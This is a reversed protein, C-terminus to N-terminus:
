GLFETIFEALRMLESPTFAVSCDSNECILRIAQHREFNGAGDVVYALKHGAQQVQTYSASAERSKRQIVSNTTVQFSVEIGVYNNNRSVVLDFNTEKGSAPDYHTVGPLSGDKRVRVGDLSINEELFEAVFDQAAHGLSNSTTGKSITSVWIYRQKVYEELKSKSGLYNCIECKAFWASTEEDLANSGVLLLVILEKIYENLEYNQFLTSGEIGIKKKINGSNANFLSQFCYARVQGDWEYQLEGSPIYKRLNTITRKINEGSFDSLVVLHKLFLNPRMTASPLINLFEEVTRVPFNLISIFEDQTKLLETIVAAGADEDALEVPWSLAANQELQEVTRRYNM